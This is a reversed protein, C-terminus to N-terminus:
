AKTSKAGGATRKRPAAATKKAQPKAAGAPADAVQADEVKAKASTGADAAPKASGAQATGAEVPEAEDVVVQEVVVTVEASELAAGRYREVVTKGREALGEYTEVAKGAAELVRGVQVLALSQAKDRLAQTDVGGVVGRISERAARPDLTSAVTRPDTPVEALRAQAKAIREPAETAIRTALTTVTGAVETLLLPADRLKEAALDGAGALAYLPKPDSLTRRIEDTVNM